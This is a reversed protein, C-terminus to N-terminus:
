RTQRASGDRRVLPCLVREVFCSQGEIEVGQNSSLQLIVLLVLQIENIRLSIPHLHTFTRGIADDALGAIPFREEITHQPVM